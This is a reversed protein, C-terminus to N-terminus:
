KKWLSQFVVDKGTSKFKNRLENICENCKPCKEVIQIDEALQNINDVGFVVHDINKNCCSFLLAAQQRTLNYKGIIEDIQKLHIKVEKLNPFHPPIKEEPMFFLGQLFASRAFVKIKNKRTLNWFSENDLRQDLISYPVQIYDIESLGAAYIADDVEYISVGINKTLEEDKMKKMAMVVESDRIYSPTHLLFGDVCDKKLFGLSEKLNKRITEEISGPSESLINPKLKTIIKIETGLNRTSTFEGLIEQADGYAYATDFIRIGKQWAHDLMSLSEERSPKGNPNNIGYKLGFQVTGLTLKNINEKM